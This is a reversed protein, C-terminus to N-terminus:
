GHQGGAATIGVPEGSPAVPVDNHRALQARNWQDQNRVEKVDKQCAPVALAILLSLLLLPTLRRRM